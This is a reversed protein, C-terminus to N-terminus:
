AAAPPKEAHRQSLTFIEVDGSTVGVAQARAAAPDGAGNQGEFSFHGSGRGGFTM